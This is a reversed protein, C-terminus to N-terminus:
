QADESNCLGFRGRPFTIIHLCLVFLGGDELVRKWGVPTGSLGGFCGCDINLGRFLSLIMAAVFVVLTVAIISASARLAVGTLIMLGCLLEVWPLVIAFLNILPLPLIQYAQVSDAFLSPVAIKDISAVIFVTGLVIRSLLVLYTNSLFGRM